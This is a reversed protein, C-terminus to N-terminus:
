EKVGEQTTLPSQHRAIAANAWFMAEEIKTLVLSQERGPPLAVQMYQALDLCHARVAEHANAVQDSSPPHYAFHHRLAHQGQDM